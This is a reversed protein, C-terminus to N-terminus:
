SMWVFRMCYGLVICGVCARQSRRGGGSGRPAALSVFSIDDSVSVFPMGSSSVACGSGSDWGCGSGCGSGSSSSGPELGSSSVGEMKVLIGAVRERRNATRSTWVSLAGKAFM